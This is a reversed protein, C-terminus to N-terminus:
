KRNLLPYHVFLKNDFCCDSIGLRHRSFSNGPFTPKWLRYFHPFLHLNHNAKISDGTSSDVIISLPSTGNNLSVKLRDLMSEAVSEIM